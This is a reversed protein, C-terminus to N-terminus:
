SFTSSILFCCWILFCSSSSRFFVVISIIHSRSRSAKSLPRSSISAWSSLSSSSAACIVSPRRLFSAALRPDPGGLFAGLLAADRGWASASSVLSSLASSLRGSCSPPSRSSATLVVQPEPADDSLVFATGAPGGGGAAGGAFTRLCREALAASSAPPSCAAAGASASGGCSPDLRNDLSSLLVSSPPERRTPDRSLRGELMGDAKEDRPPSSTKPYRPVIRESLAPEDPSTSKPAGGPSPTSSAPSGPSPAAAEALGPAPLPLPRPRPRPRPASSLSAAGCGSSEPAM